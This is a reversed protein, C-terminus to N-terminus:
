GRGSEFEQLLMMLIDRQETQRGIVEPWKQSVCRAMDAAGPSEPDTGIGRWGRNGTPQPSPRVGVYGDGLPQHQPEKTV